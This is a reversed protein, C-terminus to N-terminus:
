VRTLPERYKEFRCLIIIKFVEMCSGFLYFHVTNPIEIQLKICFLCQRALFVWSNMNTKAICEYKAVNLYLMFQCTQKKVTKDGFNKWYVSRWFFLKNLTTAHWSYKRVGRMWMKPQQIYVHHVAFIIFISLWYGFINSLRKQTWQLHGVFDSFCCTVQTTNARKKYCLSRLESQWSKWIDSTYIYIDSELTSFRIISFPVFALHTVNKTRWPLRRWVALYAVFEVHLRNYLYLAAKILFDCSLYLWVHQKDCPTSV